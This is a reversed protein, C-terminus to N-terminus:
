TGIIHCVTYSLKLTWMKQQKVAKTHDWPNQMNLLYTSRIRRLMKILVIDVLLVGPVNPETLIQCFHSLGSKKKNHFDYCLDDMYTASYPYADANKKGWYRKQKERLDSQCKSALLTTSIQQRIQSDNQIKVSSFYLRCLLLTLTAVTASISATQVTWTRSSSMQIMEILILKAVTMLIPIIEATATQRKKKQVEDKALWLHWLSQM